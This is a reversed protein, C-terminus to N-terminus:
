RSSASSSSSGGSSASGSASASSSSGSGATGELDELTVANSGATEVGGSVGVGAQSDFGDSGQAGDSSDDAAGASADVEGAEGSAQDGAAPAGGESQAKTRDLVTVGDGATERAEQKGQVSDALQGIQWGIDDILNGWFTFSKGDTIVLETRDSSFRYRGQGQLNGFTYTITKAGTDLQYSYSVDDTLDIKEADITVMTSGGDAYWLGQFDAADDYHWWRSWSFVLLVAAVAALVVLAIAAPLPIHVSPRAKKRPAAGEAQNADAETAAEPNGGAASGAAGAASPEVGYRKARQRRATRRRASEASASSRVARQAAEADAQEVGSALAEAAEKAARDAKAVSFRKPRRPKQPAADEVTAPDDAAARSGAAPSGAQKEKLRSSNQPMPIRRKPAAQAPAGTTASPGSAKSRAPRKPAETGAESGQARLDASPAVKGDANSRAVAKGKVSPRAPTASAGQESNRKTPKRKIAM